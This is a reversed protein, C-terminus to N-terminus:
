SVCWSLCSVSPEARTSTTTWRPWIVEGDSPWKLSSRTARRISEGDCRQAIPTLEYFNKGTARNWRAFFRHFTDLATGAEQIGEESFVITTRYHTRLLFFRLREGGQRRILDALGGAGKSRSIKTNIDAEEAKERDSRGGVKGAAAARMLGNHMWYKVMPKGHCCESQALENEHHPFVLDLGGGHHRVNRRALPPEDGLMRHAM